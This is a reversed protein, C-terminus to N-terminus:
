ARSAGAPQSQAALEILADRAQERDDFHHKTTGIIQYDEHGKGAILVVGDPGAAQLGIRIAQARDPEITVNPDIAHSAPMEGRVGVLVEEIIADPDETRPNDSTVVVADSLRRAIAGMKPRKTRDRDGGCGFM